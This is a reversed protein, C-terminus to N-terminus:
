TDIELNSLVADLGMRPDVGVAQCYEIFEFLEIKRSGDEIKGVISHSVDLREALARITFGAELRQAKLWARLVAYNKSNRSHRM